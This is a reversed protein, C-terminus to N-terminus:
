AGKREARGPTRNLRMGNRAALAKLKRKFARAYDKKKRFRDFEVENYVWRVAYDYYRRSYTREFDLDRDTGADFEPIGNLKPEVQAYLDTGKIPYAVTLTFLDPHASKLYQVTAEIDTEEEGPYGLMIFTGAELGYQQSLHIMAEVQEVKVRRDMADLIKQSGSEAGIWVRFCGSDRLLKVVEENMRDARTICEYAIFVKERHLAKVFNRLWKHSVTFVDDVFWFSDVEFRETIAKLEAVVKEPSRRRYSLGYVARSCWKCTYPCGRMTSISAASYGHHSKWAQFYRGLDIMDRAADPLTDLDRILPREETVVIEGLANRFAIGQVQGLFPNFPTEYTTILDYLTAEGEGIVVVDAGYDLFSAHYHRVEPGGLIIRTGRLEDQDRVFRIIELIKPRTMLNVYLGLYPPRHELLFTKLASFTSFTSDFIEVALGRERLYAAISLLGLPPYPRMIAQEKPDEAIFYGHTLLIQM